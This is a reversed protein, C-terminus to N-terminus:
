ISSGTFKGPLNLQQALRADNTSPQVVPVAAM